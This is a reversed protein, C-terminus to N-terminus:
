RTSPRIASAAMTARDRARGGVASGFFESQENGPSMSQAWGSYIIDFDRSRVRNEFQSSDVPRLTLAIGIKALETQYRLAVKEYLPGNM